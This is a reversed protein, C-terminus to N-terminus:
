LKTVEKLVELNITLVEKMKDHIDQGETFSNISRSIVEVNRRAHEIKNCLVNKKREENLLMTSENNLRLQEFQLQIMKKEQNLQSTESATKTDKKMNQEGTRM